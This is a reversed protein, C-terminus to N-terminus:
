KDCQFDKIKYHVTKIHRELNGYISCTYECHSCHFDRIKDHVTRIHKILRSNFSFTYNCQQCKFKKQNTTTEM